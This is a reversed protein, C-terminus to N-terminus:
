PFVAFKAKDIVDPISDLVLTTRGGSPLLRAEFAQSELLPRRMKFYIFMTEGFEVITDGNGVANKYCFYTDPILKEHTCEGIFMGTVYATDALITDATGDTGNIQLYGYVTENALKIVIDEINLSESGADFDERLSVNESLTDASSINFQIYDYTTGPYLIAQENTGDGDIDIGLDAWGTDDIDVGISLNMNDFYPNELSASAVYDGAFLTLTLSKLQIANSGASPRVLIEFDNATRNFENDLDAHMFIQEVDLGNVLRSRTQDGVQLAKQQLIGSTSIIVGAAVAAVLITAIFIILTGIGM